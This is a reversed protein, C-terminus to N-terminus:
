AHETEQNFNGVAHGTSVPHETRERATLPGTRSALSRSHRTDAQEFQKENSRM